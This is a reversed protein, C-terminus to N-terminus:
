GCLCTEQSKSPVHSRERGLKSLREARENAAPGAGSRRKQRQRETQAQRGGQERDHVPHQQTRQGIGLRFLQQEDGFVTGPAVPPM